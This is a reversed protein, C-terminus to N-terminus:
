QDGIKVSLNGVAPGSYSANTGQTQPPLNGVTSYTVVAPPIELHYYEDYTPLDYNPDRSVMCIDNIYPTMRCLPTISISNNHQTRSVMESVSRWHPKKMLIGYTSGMPDSPADGVSPVKRNGPKEVIGVDFGQLVEMKNIIQTRYIFEPYLRVDNKVNTFLQTAGDVLSPKGPTNIVGQFLLAKTQPPINRLYDTQYSRAQADDSPNRSAVSQEINISASTDQRSLDFQLYDYSNKKIIHRPNDKPFLSDKLASLYFEYSLTRIETSQRRLNRYYEDDFGESDSPSLGTSGQPYQSGLSLLNGNIGGLDPTVVDCSHYTSFYQVLDNSFVENNYAKKQAQDTELFDFLAMKSTRGNLLSYSVPKLFASDGYNSPLLEVDGDPTKICYPSFYVGEMNGLMINAGPIHSQPLGGPPIINEVSEYGNYLSTYQKRAIENYSQLSLSKLGNDLSTDQSTTNLFDFGLNRVVSADFITSPITTIYYGRDKASPNQTESFGIFTTEGDANSQEQRQQTRITGVISELNNSVTEMLRIVANISSPTACWPNLYDLLSREVYNWNLGEFSRDNSLLKVIQLLGSVPDTISRALYVGAIPTGSPASDLLAGNTASMNQPAYIKSFRSNFMNTKPNFNGSQIEGPVYVEGEQNQIEGGSYSVGLESPIGTITRSTKTAENYYRKIGSINKDLQRRISDLIEVSKDLIKLEIQYQYYGDTKNVIAGDIGEFHRLNYTPVKSSDISLGLKESTVEVISSKSDDGRAVPLLSANNPMDKTELILDDIQNEMFSSKKLDAPMFYNPNLLIHPSSGAESSGKIRRRFIRLSVIRSTDLLEQLFSSSRDEFIKGFVSNELLIRQWDISFFFRAQNNIDRSLHLHSFYSAHSNIDIKSNRLNNKIAGLTQNEIHSFSFEISEMTNYTRFDQIRPRTITQKTLPHHNGWKQMDKTTARIPDFPPEAEGGTLWMMKADEGSFRSLLSELNNVKKEIRKTRLTRNSREIDKTKIYKLHDLKQEIDARVVKSYHIPGGWVVGSSQYFTQSTSIAKGNQLALLGSKQSTLSTRLTPNLNMETYTIIGLDNLKGAFLYSEPVRFSYVTNHEMDVSIDLDEKLDVSLLNYTYGKKDLERTTEKMLSHYDNSNTVVVRINLLELFKPDTAVPSGAPFSIKLELVVRTKSSATGSLMGRELSTLSVNTVGRPALQSNSDIHPNRDFLVEQVDRRGMFAQSQQSADSQTELTVKSVEVMPLFPDFTKKLDLGAM